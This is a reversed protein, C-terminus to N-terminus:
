RVPRTETKCGILIQVGATPDQELNTCTAPCLEIATPATPHDYYWGGARDCSSEDPVQLLRGETRGGDITTSQAVNIRDYDLPKGPAAAPLDYRCPLAARGRITNMAQIFSRTTDGATDVVFAHDTGGAAAIQDLNSLSAGVGIVYTSIPPQEAAAGGAVASVADVTSDCDNPEGDTALVLVIRHDPHRALWGRALEVAGLMAPLTPTGGVPDYNSLSATIARSNGTLPAIPVAPVAYEAANCSVVPDGADYGTPVGFYTLGV